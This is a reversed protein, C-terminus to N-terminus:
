ISDKEVGSIITQCPLGQTRSSTYGAPSVWSYTVKGLRETPYESSRRRQYCFLERAVVFSVFDALELCPHSGPPVFTPEPVPVGHCLYTYLLQRESGLFARRAWDQIATADGHVKKEADLIYTPSVELGTFHYITDCLIAMYAKRKVELMPLNGALYVLAFVFLETNADEILKFLSDIADTIKERNWQAFIPHEKRNQGSHLDSMHFRWSEPPRTPELKQKLGRLADCANVAFRSSGGVLSICFFPHQIDQRIAEDGYLTVSKKWPKTPLDLMIKGSCKPCDVELKQLQWFGKNTVPHYDRPFIATYPEPFIKKLPVPANEQCRTCYMQANAVEDPMFEIVPQMTELRPVVKGRLRRINPMFEVTPPNPNGDPM